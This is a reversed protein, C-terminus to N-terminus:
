IDYSLPEPEPEPEPEPPEPEPEPEPEPGLHPQSKVWVDVANYKQMLSNIKSENSDYRIKLKNFEEINVSNNTSIDGILIASLDLYGEDNISFKTKVVNNDVFELSNLSLKSYKNM